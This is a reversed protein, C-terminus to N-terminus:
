NLSTSSKVDAPSVPDTSSDGFHSRVNDMGGVPQFITSQFEYIQGLALRFWVRSRLIEAFPLPESAVGDGSLGGGPDRQYGRRDSNLPGAKYAYDADLAGWQCLATLLLEKEEATVAQDLKDQSM